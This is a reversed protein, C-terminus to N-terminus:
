KIVQYFVRFKEFLILEMEKIKVNLIYKKKREPFFEM